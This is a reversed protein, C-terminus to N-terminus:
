YELIFNLKFVQNSEPHDISSYAIRYELKCRNEFVQNSEPLGKSSYLKRYKLISKYFANSCNKSCVTLKLPDYRGPRFETKTREVRSPFNHSDVKM